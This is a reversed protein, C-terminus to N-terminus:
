IHELLQLKAIQFDTQPDSVIYLAVISFLFGRLVQDPPMEGIGSLDPHLV